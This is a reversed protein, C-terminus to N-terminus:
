PQEGREYKEFEKNIIRITTDMADIKGLMYLNDEEALFEWCEKYYTLASLINDILENIMM